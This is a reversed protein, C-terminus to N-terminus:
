IIALDGNQLDKYLKVVLNEDEDTYKVEFDCDVNNVDGLAKLVKGRIWEEKGDHIWKHVIYKNVLQPFEARAHKEVSTTITSHQEKRRQLVRM